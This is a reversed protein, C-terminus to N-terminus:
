RKLKRTTRKRTSARGLSFRSASKRVILPLIRPIPAAIAGNVKSTLTGATSAHEFLQKLLKVDDQCYYILEAWRGQKYLEIANLGKDVKSVGFTGAGLDGLAYGGFREVGHKAKIHESIVQYLDIHTVESFLSPDEAVAELMLADFKLGFFSVVITAKRLMEIGDHMNHDDFIHFRGDLYNFVVMVSIGIERRHQPKKMSERDSKLGFKDSVEKFSRKTELDFICIPLGEYM